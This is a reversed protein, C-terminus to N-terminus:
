FYCAFRVFLHGSIELTISRPHSAKGGVNHSPSWWSNRSPWFQTKQPEHGPQSQFNIITEIQTRFQYNKKKKKLIQHTKRQLPCNNTEKHQLMISPIDSWFKQLCFSSRKPRSQNSMHFQHRELLQLDLLRFSGPGPFSLLHSDFWPLWYNCTIEEPNRSDISSRFKVM